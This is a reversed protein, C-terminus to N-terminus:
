GHHLVSRWVALLVLECPDRRSVREELRDAPMRALLRELRERTAGGKMRQRVVRRCPDVEVPRAHDVPEAVDDMFADEGDLQRAVVLQAPALGAHEAVQRHGREPYM